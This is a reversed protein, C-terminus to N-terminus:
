ATWTVKISNYTIDGDAISPPTMQQPIDDTKLLLTTSFPGMGVNNIASIRYRVDKNGDFHPNVTHQFNLNAVGTNQNVQGVNVWSAETFSPDSYLYNDWQIQYKTVPSRGSAADDTVVGWTIEIMNYTVTVNAPASMQLPVADTRVTVETSCAGMGVLNKACVRYKHDVDPYFHDTQAHTFTTSAGQTGEVSVETWVGLSELETGCDGNLATYCPRNFFEVKYYTVSDRGTDADATIATWTLDISNYDVQTSSPPNM